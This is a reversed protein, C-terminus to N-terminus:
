EFIHVTVGELSKDYSKLLSFKLNVLNSETELDLDEELTLRLLQVTSSEEQDLM